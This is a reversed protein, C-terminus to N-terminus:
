LYKESYFNLFKENYLKTEGGTVEVEKLGYIRRLARNEFVKLIKGWFSLALEVCM